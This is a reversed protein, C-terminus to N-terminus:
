LSQVLKGRASRATARAPLAGALRELAAHEQGARRHDAADQSDASIAAVIVDADLKVSCRGDDGEALGGLSADAEIVAAIGADADVDFAAIVDHRDAVLQELGCGNKASVSVVAEFAASPIVPDVGTQSVVRDFATPCGILWASDVGGVIRIACRRDCVIAPDDGRIATLAIQQGEVKLPKEASACVILQIDVGVVIMARHVNVGTGAVIVHVKGRMSVRVRGHMAAAPIIANKDRITATGAM